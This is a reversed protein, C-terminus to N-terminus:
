ESPASKFTAPLIGATAPHNTADEVRLVRRPPAVLHQEMEKSGLFTTWSVLGSEASVGVADPVSRCLSTGDM